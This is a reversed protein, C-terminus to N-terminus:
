RQLKSRQQRAAIRARVENRNVRFAADIETLEASWAVALPSPTAGIHAEAADLITELYSRRAADDRGPGVRVAIAVFAHDPDGDA